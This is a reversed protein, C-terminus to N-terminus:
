VRGESESRRLACLGLESAFCVSAIATWVLLNASGISWVTRIRCEGEDAFTETGYPVLDEDEGSLTADALGGKSSLEAPCKGCIIM